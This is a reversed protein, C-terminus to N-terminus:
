NKGTRSVREGYLDECTVSREQRCQVTARLVISVPSADHLDSSPQEFLATSREYEQKPHETRACPHMQIDLLSIAFSRMERLFRLSFRAVQFEVV